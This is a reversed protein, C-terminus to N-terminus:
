HLDSRPIGADSTALWRRFHREVIASRDSESLGGIVLNNHEHPDSRHDYVEMLGQSQYFCSKIIGDFVMTGHEPPFNAQADNYESVVCDKHRDPDGKGCVLPWFSKGQMRPPADIGAAELITPALDILEVLADSKRGAEVVGPQRIILPVRVLPDLFRCGKYMLGHDGLMEGHDSTFMILTDDAMDRQRLLDMISGFEQDILEIMAYYAAKVARGDFSAPPLATLQGPRGPHRGEGDRPTSQGLVDLASPTQFPIDALFEQNDRDGDRWIPPTLRDPDYRQLYEQPPDFPPHPDFVNVMLM